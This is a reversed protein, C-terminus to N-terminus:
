SGYHPTNAHRITVPPTKPRPSPWGGTGNRARSLHGRLRGALTSSTTTIAQAYQWLETTSPSLAPADDNM